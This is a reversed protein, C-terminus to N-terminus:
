FSKGYRRHYDWIMEVDDCLPKQRCINSIKAPTDPPLFKREELIDAYIGSHIFDQIKRNVFHLHSLEDTNMGKGTHQFLLFPEAAYGEKPLVIEAHNSQAACEAFMDPMIFISGFHNSKKWIHRITKSPSSFTRINRIFRILAEEGCKRYIYLGIIPDPIKAGGIMCIEDKYVPDALDEYCEPLRRDGLRVTDIVIVEGFYGAIQPHDYIGSDLFREKFTKESCEGYALTLYNLPLNKEEMFSLYDEKPMSGAPPAPIYSTLIEKEETYNMGSYQRFENRFRTKVPSPLEAWLDIM